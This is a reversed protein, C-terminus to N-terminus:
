IDARVGEESVYCGLVPIEPDCFVRKELKAYLKIERMVQFVQKLHRIHVETASLQQEARRHVFINDFYSPAFDHLPRLLQTVMRKFTEPANTHGQPVFGSMTDLVMVKRPIPTQAPITAENLKNFAHAIRWGGTAKKVCFTHKSHPSVSDRVHGAQRRGEFFEDIRHDVILQSRLLFQKRFSMPM